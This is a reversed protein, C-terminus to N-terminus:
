AGTGAGDFAAGEDVLTDDGVEEDSKFAGAGGLDLPGAGIGLALAGKVETVRTGTLGEAPVPVLVAEGACALGDM